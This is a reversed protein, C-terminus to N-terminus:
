RNLRGAENGPRDYWTRMEARIADPILTRQPQFRAIRPDFSGRLAAPGNL